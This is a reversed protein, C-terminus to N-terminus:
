RMHQSVFTAADERWHGQSGARGGMCTTRGASTYLGFVLGKSHVYHALAKMGSPFLDPDPQLNGNKDREQAEWCDDINVYVYGADRM